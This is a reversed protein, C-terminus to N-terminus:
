SLSKTVDEELLLELQQEATVTSLRELEQPFDSDPRLDMMLTVSLPQMHEQADPTLEKIESQQSLTASPLEKQSKVSPCSMEQQSQPKKAQLSTSDPTHEKQQWSTSQKKKINIPTESISRSSLAAEEPTMFFPESSVESTAMEKSSTSTVIDPPHSEKAKPPEIFVVKKAKEKAQAYCSHYM